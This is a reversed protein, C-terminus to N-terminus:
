PVIRGSKTLVSYEWYFREENSSCHLLNQPNGTRMRKRILQKIDMMKAVADHGEVLWLPVPRLCLYKCVEEAWEANEFQYFDHVLDLTFIAQGIPIVVFGSAQIESRIVEVLGRELADPKIMVLTREQEPM